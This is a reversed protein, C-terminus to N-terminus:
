YALNLPQLGKPVNVKTCKGKFGREYALLEFRHGFDSRRYAKDLADHVEMPPSANWRLLTLAMETHEADLVRLESVDLPFRPGNYMALLVKAAVRAHGTDSQTALMFFHAMARIPDHAIDAPATNSM